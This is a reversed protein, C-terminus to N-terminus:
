SIINGVEVQRGVGPMSTEYLRVQVLVETRSQSWDVAFVRYEVRRKKQM